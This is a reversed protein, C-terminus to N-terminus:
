LAPRDSRRAIRSASTDPVVSLCREGRRARLVGIEGGLVLRQPWAACVLAREAGDLVRHEGRAPLHELGAPQVVIGAAVVEAAAVGVALDFAEDGLEFSEALVDRQLRGLRVGVPNGM